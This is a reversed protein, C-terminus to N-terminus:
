KGVLATEYGADQLWVALNSSEAFAPYSTTGFNQLVGDHHAYQGTLISARSPCCESTTVFSNAFTVGHAALLNRVNPMQALTDARQDDSLIVVVNPRAAAAGTDRASASSAALAALMAVAISVLRRRLGRM